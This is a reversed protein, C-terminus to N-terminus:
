TGVKVEEIEGTICENVLNDVKRDAKNSVIDEKVEAESRNTSSYSQHMKIRKSHDMRISNPDTLITVTKILPPQEYLRTNTVKPAKNRVM